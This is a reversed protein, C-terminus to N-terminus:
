KSSLLKNIDLKGELSKKVSDLDVSKKICNCIEYHYTQKDRGVHGRGFCSKCNKPPTKKLPIHGMDFLEYDKEPITYFNGSYASFMLKTTSM